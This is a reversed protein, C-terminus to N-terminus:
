AGGDMEVITAQGAMLPGKTPTLRWLEWRYRGPTVGALDASLTITGTAAASTDVTFAVEIVNDAAFIAASWTWTSVDLPSGGSTFSVPFSIAQHEAALLAVADSLFNLTQM